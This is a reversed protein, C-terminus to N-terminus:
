GPNVRIFRLKLNARGARVEMGVRKARGKPIANYHCGSRFGRFSTRMVKMRFHHRQGFIGENRICESQNRGSEWDEGEDKLRTAPPRGDKLRWGRGARRSKTGEAVSGTEPELNETRIKM